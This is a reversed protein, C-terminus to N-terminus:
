YFIKETKNTLVAIKSSSIKSLNYLKWQISPLKEVTNPTMELLDWQPTKKIFSIIFEKEKPLLSKNVVQITKLRIDNLEDLSVSSSDFIMEQLNSLSTEEFKNINPNLLENIPRSSSLMYIILAKRTKDTIGDIIRLNKLDYFDRPHQRDLAACIKSSFIDEFSLLKVPVNYNLENKIKCNPEVINTEYVSGRMIPNPEVKISVENRQVNLKSIFKKDKLMNVQVYTNSFYKGIHKKIRLLSSSMENLSDNRGKVPLYTLDIDISLRPLDLYFFNIATGGKLAWISDKMCVPLCELMLKAQKKYKEIKM